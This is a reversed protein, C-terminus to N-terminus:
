PVESLLSASLSAASSSLSSSALSLSPFISRFNNITLSIVIILVVYMIAQTHTHAHIHTHSQTKTDKHREDTLTTARRSRVTSIDGRHANARTTWIEQTHKLGRLSWLGFGRETCVNTLLPSSCQACPGLGACIQELRGGRLERTRERLLWRLPLHCIFFLSFCVIQKM